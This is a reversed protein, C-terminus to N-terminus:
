TPRRPLPFPFSPPWCTKRTRTALSPPWPIPIFKWGSSRTPPFGAGGAPERRNKELADLTSHNYRCCAHRKFYNRAIEYREGLELTMAQRDFTESIVSGYVTGLGDAEGTFGSATLQHALIGMHNSVGSYINRVTGGELMTKRSTALALSSSINILRRFDDPGYGMLKGM